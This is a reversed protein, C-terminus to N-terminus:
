NPAAEAAAEAEALARHKAVVALVEECMALSAFKFEIADCNSRQRELHWQAARRANGELVAALTMLHSGRYGTQGRECGTNVNFKWEVGTRDARVAIFQSNKRVVVGTLDDSHSYKASFGISDGVNAEAAVKWAPTYNSM